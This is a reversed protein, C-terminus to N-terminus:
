QKPSRRAVVSDKIKDYTAQPVIGKSVLQNKALYPRGDIIRTAYADGIGPLAKLEAATATNLDLLDVPRSSSAAAPKPTQTVGSSPAVGLVSVTWIVLWFGLQKTFM